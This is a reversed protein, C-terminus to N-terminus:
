RKSRKGRNRKGLENLTVLNAEIEGTCILHIGTLLVRFVYLLSKVRWLREARVAAM